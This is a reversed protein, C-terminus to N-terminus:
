RRASPLRLAVTANGAPGRAIIVAQVRLPRRKPLRAWRRTAVRIRVRESRGGAIRYHASGLMLWRGVHAARAASPGRLVIRGECVAQSRPCHLKLTVMGRRVRLLRRLVRVRRLKRGSPGPTGAV